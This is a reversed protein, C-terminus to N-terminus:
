IGREPSTSTSPPALRAAGGRRNRPCRWTGIGFLRRTVARTKRHTPYIRAEEMTPDCGSSSSPRLCCTGGRVTPTPKLGQEIRRLPFLFVTDQEKQPPPPTPPAVVISLAGGHAVVIIPPHEVHVTMGSSPPSMMAPVVIVISVSAAVMAAPIGRPSYPATANDPPRDLTHTSKPWNDKDDVDPLPAHPPDKYDDHQRICSGM